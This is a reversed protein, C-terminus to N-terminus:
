DEKEMDLIGSVIGSYFMEQKNEKFWDENEWDEWDENDNYIDPYLIKMVKDTTNTDVGADCLADMVQQTSYNRNTTQSRVRQVMANWSGPYHSGNHRCTSYGKEVVVHIKMEGKFLAPEILIIKGTYGCEEMEKKLLEIERRCSFFVQHEKNYPKRKSVGPVRM